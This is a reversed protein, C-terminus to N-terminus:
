IFSRVNDHDDSLMLSLKCNIKSIDAGNPLNPLNNFIHHAFSLFSLSIFLIHTTEWAALKSASRMKINSKENSNYFQYTSKREVLEIHTKKKKSM